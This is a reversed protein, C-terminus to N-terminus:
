CTEVEVLDDEPLYICLCALVAFETLSINIHKHMHTHARTHLGPHCIVYDNHILILHPIYLVCRQVACNVELRQM